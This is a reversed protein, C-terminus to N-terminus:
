ADGELPLRLTACVGGAADNELRLEGGLHSLTVHSLMVGLGLGAPKDSDLPALGARALQAASLRGRRNRIRLQLQGDAIAADLEVEGGGADAA